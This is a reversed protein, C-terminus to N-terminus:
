SRTIFPFQLENSKFFSKFDKVFLTSGEVITATKTFGMTDHPTFGLEVRKITENIMIAVVEDLSVNSSSFVGNLRLTSDDTETIVLTDLEEIVWILDVYIESCLFDILTFGNKPHFSSNPCERVANRVRALDEPRNLDLKRPNLATNVAPIQNMVHIYDEAKAFGFRPYFGLVEDNAYLYILDSKQEWEAIVRELLYRSLGRNQYEMDTMVTLIQACRYSKGQYEFQLDYVSVNAVMRNGDLLSYPIYGDAIWDTLEFEFIKRALDNFSEQLEKSDYFDSVFTYQKENIELIEM